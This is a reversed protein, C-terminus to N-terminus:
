LFLYFRQHLKKFEETYNHPGKELSRLVLEKEQCVCPYKVLEILLRNAKKGIKPIVFTKRKLYFAYKQASLIFINGEELPLILSLNGTPSLLEFTSSILENKPLYETTRAKSRAEKTIATSSNIDFYPPNTIISDYLRPTTSQYNQISLNICNLRNSWPSKSFNDNAQETAEQEIEVADIQALKNRQASMLALLGTGTGIDLISAAQAVSAWAGLLVADTGIKMACRDQKISFEKFNFISM